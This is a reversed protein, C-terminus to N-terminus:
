KKNRLLLNIAKVKYDNNSYYNKFREFENDPYNNELRSLFIETVELKYSMTSFLGLIDNLEKLSLVHPMFNINDEIFELRYSLSSLDKLIDILKSIPLEGVGIPQPLVQPEPEEESGIQSLTQIEPEKGINIQPLPRLETEKPMETKPHCGEFITIDYFQIGLWSGFLGLLPLGIIIWKGEMGEKPIVDVKEDNKNIMKVIKKIIYRIVSEYEQM